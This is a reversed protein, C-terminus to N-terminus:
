HSNRSGALPAMRILLLNRVALCGNIKFSKERLSLRGKLICIIGSLMTQIHCQAQSSTTSHVQARASAYLTCQVSHTYPDTDLTYSLWYLRHTDLNQLSHELMHQPVSHTHRTLVSWEVTHPYWYQPHSPTHTKAYRKHTITQLWGLYTRSTRYPTHALTKVMLKLNSLLQVSIPTKGCDPNGHIRSSALEGGHQDVCWCEGRAQDCQLKRYYGDEDCSPIFLGLVCVFLPFNCIYDCM